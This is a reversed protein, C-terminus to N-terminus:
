TKDSFPKTFKGDEDLYSYLCIEECNEAGFGDEDEFYRGDPQLTWSVYAKGDKYEGIRFAFRVKDDCPYELEKKWEGERIGPFNRIRGNGDVLCRHFTPDDTKMLYVDTMRYGRYGNPVEEFVYYYGSGLKYRPEPPEAEATNRLPQVTKSFLKRMFTRFM